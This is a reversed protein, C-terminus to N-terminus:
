EMTVGGDVDLTEGTLYSALDSALFVVADAVERIEGRRGLPVAGLVRALLERDERLIKTMETDIAGPAVANVTIGAPALERALAKTLGIM